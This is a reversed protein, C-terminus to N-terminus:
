VCKFGGFVGTSTLVLWLRKSLLLYQTLFFVLIFLIQVKEEVSGSHIVLVAIKIFLRFQFLLQISIGLFNLLLSLAHWFWFFVHHHHRRGLLFQVLRAKELVFSHGTKVTSIRTYTSSLENYVFAVLSGFM